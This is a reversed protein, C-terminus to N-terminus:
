QDIETPGDTSLSADDFLAHVYQEVESWIEQIPLEDTLLPLIENLNLAIRPYRFEVSVDRIFTEYMLLRARSPNAHVLARFAALRSGGDYRRDWGHASSAKLAQEGLSWAGKHDGLDYLKESLIAFIQASNRKSQFLNTLTHIGEADLNEALHTVVPEWDFYSDDPENDLLEQIDSVSSPHMKVDDISITTSGDKVKLLSSSFDEKQDPQIDAAELGFSNPDTVALLENAAHRSAESDTKELVAIIRAFWAIREAAREPEIKNIQGLWEIWSSLQYDKQAIDFSGHLMRDLARSASENDDLTIWAEAQKCCEDIRSYVDGEKVMMTELASIRETAWRRDVGAHELAMIVQRRVDAPWFSGIEPDDWDDEFLVRLSEIAESGHQAVAYVLLTYFEGRVGKAGHWSTWHVTEHFPRNFIRLIPLVKKEIISIDFHQKLWAEAWIHAIVCIAREFEVIGRHDLDEPDPVIESPSRKDGLAYLLRNLRFRPLFPTLGTDPFIADTMLESQAVDQLWTNAQEGDKLIQYIGDALAVRMDSDLNRDGITKITEELIDQARHQDGAIICDGWAHVNLRFWWRIDEADRTDFSKGTTALDEWKRENLLSLGVRFLM